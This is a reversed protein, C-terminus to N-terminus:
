AGLPLLVRSVARRTGRRVTSSAAWALVASGALAAVFALARQPKVRLRWGGSVGRGREVPELVNGPTDVAAREAFQNEDVNRRMLRDFLEGSVAHLAVFARSSPPVFVERRPHEIADVIAEAVLEPAYIPTLAKIAKGSYNGAHDWFPTDIAGPLITVVDLPTGLLEQRLSEGFGRIAFKSATYATAYPAGVAGLVSAINVIVGQGQERMYPLAARCGNVVGFFNTEVVGRFVDSPIQELEGIASVGADNVWADIRGFTAIAQQALQQVADEDKVDTPVALALGGLAECEAALVDLADRRRAALVVAAGERSLALALARGIGSSAGTIVVACDGANRAM